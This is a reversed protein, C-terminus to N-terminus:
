LGFPILFGKIIETSFHLHLMVKKRLGTGIHWVMIFMRYQYTFLPLNEKILHISCTHTHMRAHTRAHTHTHVHM